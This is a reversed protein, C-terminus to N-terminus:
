FFDDADSEWDADSLHGGQLHQHQQPSAQMFGPFASSWRLIMGDLGASYLEQMSERFVLGTMKMFHGAQNTEPQQAFEGSILDYCGISHNAM